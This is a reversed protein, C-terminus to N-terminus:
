GRDPSPKRARLPAKRTLGSKRTLGGDKGDKFGGSRGFGSKSLRPASRSGSPPATGDGEVTETSAHGAAPEAGPKAGPRARPKAGRKGIQRVKLGQRLSLPASLQGKDPDTFASGFRELREEVSALFADEWETVGEGSGEARARARKLWNIAQRTLAPDVKRAM